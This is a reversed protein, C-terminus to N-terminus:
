HPNSTGSYAVQSGSREIRFPEERLDALAACVRQRKERPAALLLFGGGGAGTIKGGTAGADRAQSYAKDIAPDSIDEGLSRKLLWGEHLYDGVSDVQGRALDRFFEFALDHLRVYGDICNAMAAIQGTLLPASPRTRGTYFLLLSGELASLAEDTLNIRRVDVSEDPHFQMFRLGGYAAIYQDQKGGPARVIEREVRVAEEALERPTAPDGFWAHLANLLGVTFASSSGLGTGHSPIDSISVIEIGRRIGLYRLCERVLPHRVDDATPVNETESYSVRVHNDFKKNVILYVYKNIAANVVAGGRNNRYYEPIDTGGGVFSIRLPTQSVIMREGVRFAHEAREDERLRELVKM